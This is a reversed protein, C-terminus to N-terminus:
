RASLVSARPLERAPRLTDDTYCQGVPEYRQVLGARVIFTHNCETSVLSNAYHRVETGDGAFSRDLQMTRFIPQEDLAIVPVDTWADVDSQRVSRPPNVTACGALAAVAGSALVALCGTWAGKRTLPSFVLRSPRM